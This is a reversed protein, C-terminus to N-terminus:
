ITGSIKKTIPNHILKIIPNFNEFISNFFILLIAFFIFIHLNGSKIKAINQNKSIKMLDPTALSIPLRLRDNKRNINIPNKRPNAVPRMWSGNDMNIGIYKTCYAINGMGRISNIKKYQEMKKPYKIVGM